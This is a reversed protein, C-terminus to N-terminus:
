RVMIAVFVIAVLICGLAWELDGIRKHLTQTSTTFEQRMVPQVHSEPILTVTMARSPDNNPIMRYQHEIPPPSQILLQPEM